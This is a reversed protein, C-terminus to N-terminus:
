NEFDTQWVFFEYFPENKFGNLVSVARSLVSSSVHKLSYEFSMDPNASTTTYM